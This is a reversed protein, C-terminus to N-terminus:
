EDESYRIGLAEMVLEQPLPDRMAQFCGEKGFGFYIAGFLESGLFYSDGTTDMGWYNRSDVM